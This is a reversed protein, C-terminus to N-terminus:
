TLNWSPGYLWYLWFAGALFAGFPLATNARMTRGALAAAAAFALGGLAALLIIWPLASVGLWAGAAGLLKADGLGLGDHGRLMRYLINIGYLASYGVAAGLAHWFVQDPATLIALGLGVLLLPLTLIDPLLFSRVDIWALALLTWGLLSGFWVQQQTESAFVAWAAVGLASLEVAPYFWGIFRDCHRCRGRLVAFSLLPMLDIPGLAAGCNSCASRSIVVPEQAPLRLILVGLFSGIFPAAVLPLAWAAENFTTTFLMAPKYCMV